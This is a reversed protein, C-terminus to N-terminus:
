KGILKIYVPMRPDNFFYVGKKKKRLITGTSDSMAKSMPNNIELQEISSGTIEKYKERWQKSTFDSEGLLAACYMLVKKKENDGVVNNYQEKLTAEIMDISETLGREYIYKTIRCQEEVIAMEASKLALLHTFYPFGSSAKVILEKVEQEFIIGIRQEGKNIIDEIESNSMRDLKIESICRTTSPHGELLEIASMAIGIIFFSVKSGSDSLTKLLQAIKKKEESVSIVDFEDVIIICDYDKIKEALWNPSDFRSYVFSEETLSKGGSFHYLAGHIDKSTVSSTKVEIGIKELIQQSITEFTDSSNCRVVIKRNKIKHNIALNSAYKALSTKGVGRDGYLLIHMGTTGFVNIIKKVEDSRGCFFNPDVPKSPVFVDRVGSKEIRRLDELITDEM